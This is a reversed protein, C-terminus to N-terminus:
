GRRNIPQEETGYKVGPIQKGKKMDARILAENPLLHTLPIKGLDEIEFVQVTRFSVNGADTSVKQDATPILDLKDAATSARLTGKTVREALKAQALAEKQRAETQYKTIKSRMLAIAQTLPTELPKWRAREAATADLLPRLVKAKEEEIRDSALNLESLMEVAGTMEDQTEITYAEARQVMPPVQTEISLEKSM